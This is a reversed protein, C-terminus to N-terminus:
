LGERGEYRELIVGREIVAIGRECDNSAVTQSRIECELATVRLVTLDRVLRAGAAVKRQFAPGQVRVDLALGAAEAKRRDTHQRQRAIPLQESAAPHQERGVRDPEHDVRGALLENRHGPVEVNGAGIVRRLREGRDADAPLKELNVLQPELVLANEIGTALGGPTVAIEIGCQQSQVYRESDRGGNNLDGAQWIRGYRSLPSGFTSWLTRVPSHQAKAAVF